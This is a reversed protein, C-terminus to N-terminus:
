TVHPDTPGIVEGGPFPSSGQGTGTIPIVQINGNVVTAWKSYTKEGSPQRRLYGMSEVLYLYRGDISDRLVNTRSHVQWLPVDLGEWTDSVAGVKVGSNGSSISCDYRDEKRVEQFGESTFTYYTGDECKIITGIRNVVKGHGEITLPLNVISMTIEKDVLRGEEDSSASHGLIKMEAEKYAELPIGEETTIITHGVIKELALKILALREIDSDASVTITEGDSNGAVNKWDGNYFAKLELGNDSPKLWMAGKFRPPASQFLIDDIIMTIYNFDQKAVWDKIKKIYIKWTINSKFDFIKSIQLRLNIFIPM